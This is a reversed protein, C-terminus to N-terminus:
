GNKKSFYECLYYDKSNGKIGKRIQKIPELQLVMKKRMKYGVGGAIGANFWNILNNNYDKIKTNKNDKDSNFEVWANYVFGLQPGAEIYICNKFKYNALVPIMFSSMKQIYEGEINYSDAELFKLDDDSLNRMGFNSKVQMGTHLYWHSKIRIDFYYGINFNSLSKTDGFGAINTLNLGGVLGFELEESNLKEGFLISILVQSHVTYGFILLYKKM